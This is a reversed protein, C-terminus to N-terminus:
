SRRAPRARARRRARADRAPDRADPVRVSNALVHLRDAPLGAQRLGTALDESVCSVADAGRLLLSAARYEAHRVGHFTALVRPRRPGRGLRAGLAALAAVRPNHAHVVQPRTAASRPRSARSGRPWAPRRAAGPPCPSASCARVPSSRSSRARRAGCRGGRPRAAPLEQALTIVVREAGGVDTGPTALLIRVAGAPVRLPRAHARGDRGRRRQARRAGAGRGGARAGAGSRRAPARDGRGAGGPRRPRGAARHGGPVLEPVGGVRTAVVPVGATMAELLALPSNEMYSSLVLVRCARSRRRAGPCPGPLEVAGDLGLARAQSQLAAAEPGAGYLAFRTAPRTAALAAAAELFVDLGKVPAFSTLTGVLEGREPLRADLAVGNPIVTIREAPWGLRTVLEREVAHSVTIVADARRALLADVGRYALRARLGPRESGAPPPLYPEPLGHVTFVVRRARPRCCAPGCGPAATRPTSSTSARSRAGCGAHARRRRAPPAAAGGDRAGGGGRAPRRDGRTACVARVEVGAAALGGALTVTHEVPGGRELTSVLGVKM